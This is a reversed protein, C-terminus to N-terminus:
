IKITISERKWDFSFELIHLIEINEYYSNGGKDIGILLKRYKSSQSPMLQYGQPSAAKVIEISDPSIGMYEKEGNENMRVSWDHFLALAHWYEKIISKLNELNLQSSQM